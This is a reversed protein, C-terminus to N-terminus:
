PVPVYRGSRELADAEHQRSTARLLKIYENLCWRYENSEEHYSQSIRALATKLVSEAEAYNKSQRLYSGKVMLMEDALFKADDIDMDHTALRAQDILEIATKYDHQREAAHAATRLTKIRMRVPTMPTLSAIAEDAFKKAADPKQEAMYLNSLDLLVQVGMKGDPAYDSGSLSTLKILSSEADKFKGCLYQAGSLAYITDNYEKSSNGYKKATLAVTENWERLAENPQVAATYDNAAEKHAEVIAASSAPLLHKQAELAAAIYPTAESRRFGNLYYTRLEKSVLVMEPSYQRGGNRLQEFAGKAVREAAVSQLKDNLAHFEDMLKTIEPDYKTQKEPVTQPRDAVPIAARNMWGVGAILAITCGVAVAIKKKHKGPSTAPKEAKGLASSRELQEIGAAIESAAHYRESPDKRLCKLTLERLGFPVVYEGSTLPAPEHSLHNLMTEFATKGEIPRKGSLMEYIVCGFSYIDSRADLPQGQVQEPSMYAPTGMTQGTGSVEEKQQPGLLKALGFDIIKVLEGGDTNVIMINGPKLDRHLVGHEHANQLGNAIQKILELARIEPLVRGKTLLRELNQGEVNELVLYPQGTHLIGCDYVACINPHNLGSAVRAEQEFRKIREVTSVLDARLLKFAVIRDLGVQKARYVTSFGGTGIVSLLEFKGAIVTGLLSDHTFPLLEAGDFKCTLMTDQATFRSSCIPCFKEITIRSSM